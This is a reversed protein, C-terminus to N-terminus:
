GAMARTVLPIVRRWTGEALDESIQLMFPRGAADKKLQEIAAIVEQDPSNCLNSPFNPLIVKDPFAERWQSYTMDGGIVPDSVSELVDIESQRILPVLPKAKGDYHAVVIKGVQHACLVCYKYLDLLYTEFYRPPTMDVTVNDPIWIVPAASEMARGVQERYRRAMAQMLEEVPEPDDYLDTLFREGGALELLLKQYPTRDMRGMIVGDDGMAEVAQDYMEGNSGLVANEVIHKMVRYDEPSKIYYASIHESGAGKSKGIDSWVTGVPTDYTRRERMQGNEWHYRSTLEVDGVQSLFGPLMHWPPGAQTTLPIYDIIGLGNNRAEREISGRPLYRAYIGLVPRGPMEGRYIGSMRERMTMSDGM